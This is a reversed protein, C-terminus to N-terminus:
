GRQQKWQHHGMLQDPEVHRHHDRGAHQEDDQRQVASECSQVSGNQQHATRRVHDEQDNLAASLPHRVLVVERTFKRRRGGPWPSRPKQISRQNKDTQDHQHNPERQSTVPATVIASDSRAHTLEIM